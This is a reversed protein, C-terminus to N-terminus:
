ATKKSNKRPKKLQLEFVCWHSNEALFFDESFYKSLGSARWASEMFDQPWDAAISVSLCDEHGRSFQVNRLGFKERLAAKFFRLASGFDRGKEIEPSWDLNLEDLLKRAQKGNLNIHNDKHEATYRLLEILTKPLQTHNSM